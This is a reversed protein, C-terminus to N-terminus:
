MGLHAQTGCIKCGESSGAQGKAGLPLSLAIQETMVSEKHGRFYM